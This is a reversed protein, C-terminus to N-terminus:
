PVKLKPDFKAPQATYSMLIWWGDEGKANKQLQADSFLVALPTGMKIGFPALIPPVGEGLLTTNAISKPLFGRVWGNKILEGDWSGIFQGDQLPVTGLIPLQLSISAPTTAFCPAAATEQTGLLGCPQASNAHMVAAQFPFTKDPGCTMNSGLPMQCLAGGSTVTGDKAKPDSTEFFRLLLSIDVFGDGNEDTTLSTNAANQADTTVDIKFVLTAYVNPAKLVLTDIRFFADSKSNEGLDPPGADVPMTGGDGGPGGAQGGDTTGGTGSPGGGQTGADATVGGMMGGQGADTQGSPGPDDSGGEGGGGCAIAVICALSALLTRSEPAHALM